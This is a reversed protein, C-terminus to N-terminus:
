HCMRFNEPVIFSKYTELNEDTAKVSILYREPDTEEYFCLYKGKVQALFKFPSFNSKDLVYVGDKTFFAWHTFTTLVFYVSFVLYMVMLDTHHVASQSYMRQEKAIFREKELECLKQYDTPSTIIADLYAPHLEESIGLEDVSVGRREAIAELGRLDMDNIYARHSYATMSDIIAVTLCFLVAIIEVVTKHVDASRVSRDIGPKKAKFLIVAAHIGLFLLMASGACILIISLVSLM